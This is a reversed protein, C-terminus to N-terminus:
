QTHGWCYSGALRGCDHDELIGRKGPSSPQYRGPQIRHKMEPSIGTVTPIKMLKARPVLRWVVRPASLQEKSHCMEALVCAEQDVLDNRINARQFSQRDSCRKTQTTM